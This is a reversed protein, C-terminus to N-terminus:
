AVLDIVHVNNPLIYDIMPRVTDWLLGGNGCGPRPLVFTSNPLAIALARLEWASQHVLDLTAKDRWYSKVPYICVPKNHMYYDTIAVHYGFDKIWRALAYPLRPYQAKAQAAVGRGMVLSGDRKITSNITICLIDAQYQWINGHVIKM